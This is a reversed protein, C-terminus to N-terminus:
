LSFKALFHAMQVAAVDALLGVDVKVGAEKLRSFGQGATRPDPDQLCCVLRDIRAEILCGTCDPGRVSVHACPELTVYVTAGIPLAGAVSGLAVAEGHPRGGDATVGTGLVVGDKVIVCGVAPNVGTKGTQGLALSLAVSMFHTDEPSWLRTM